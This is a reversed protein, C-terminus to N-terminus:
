ICNKLWLYLCNWALIVCVKLLSNLFNVFYDKILAYDTRPVDSVTPLLVAKEAYRKAVADPDEAALAKNWLQFLGRVEDETIPQSKNSEPMRHLTILPHSMLYTCM